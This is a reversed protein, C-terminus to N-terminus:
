VCRIRNHCYRARYVHPFETPESCSYSTPQLNLHDYIKMVPNLNGSGTISEVTAQTLTIDATTSTTTIPVEASSNDSTCTSEQSSTYEQNVEENACPPYLQPVAEQGDDITAIEMDTITKKLARIVEDLTKAQYKLDDIKSALSKVSTAATKLKSVQVLM